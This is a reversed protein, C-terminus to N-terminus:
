ELVMDPYHLNVSKSNQILSPAERSERMHQETYDAISSINVGPTHIILSKRRAELTSFWGDITTM